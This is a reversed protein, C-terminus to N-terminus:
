RRVTWQLRLTLKVCSRCACGVPTFRTTNPYGIVTISTNLPSAITPRSTAVTNIPTTDDNSARERHNSIDQRARRNTLDARNKGKLAGTTVPSAPLNIEVFEKACTRKLYVRQRARLPGTVHWGPGWAVGTETSTESPPVVESCDRNTSSPAASVYAPGSGPSGSDTQAAAAGAVSVGTLAAGLTM